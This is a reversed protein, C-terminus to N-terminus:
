KNLQNGWADWGERNSRAFMELKSADPYYKEIMEYVEDPKKSHEQRPAELVSPYLVSSSPAYPKGKVCIWLPEHKYRVWSGRGIKDKVWVMEAKYEFGWTKLCELSLEIRSSMVWFFLVANDLALDGVPLNIIDEDNMTPYFREIDRDPTIAAVNWPPDIYLVMYKKEGLPLSTTQEQAQKQVEVRKKETEITKLEKRYEALSGEGAMAKKVAERSADIDINRWRDRTQKPIAPGEEPSASKTYQNSPKKKKGLQHKAEKLVHEWYAKQAKPAYKRRVEAMTIVKDLQENTFTELITPLKDISPLQEIEQNEFVQIDKEM